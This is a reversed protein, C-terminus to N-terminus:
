LTDAHPVPLGVLEMVWLTVAQTVPLRVPERVWEKVAHVVPLGLPEALWDGLVCCLGESVMLPVRLAQTEWVGVRERVDEPQPECDRLPVMFGESEGEGARM